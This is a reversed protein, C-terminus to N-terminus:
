DLARASPTGPLARALQARNRVGLRRYLRTLNAEVAKVSLFVAAAIERNTAGARVLEVIRRETETLGPGRAGDLRALDDLAAVRWPEAGAAAYRTVAEVFADRAAGRRHARRQLVALAHWARGEEIPYPHRVWRQVAEALREAAVRPGDEAALLASEARSLSLEVVWRGYRKANRQVESLIEAAEARNGVAALAEVFDGHWMLIAPDVRGLKQELLWARRMLDVAAAPDGRLMRVQGALGYAIALFDDDGAAISQQACEGALRAASDLDGGFWEGLAGSALGPGITTVADRWLRVCVRGAAVADAGRGARGYIAPASLLVAALDRVTGAREVESRLAEIRRVAEDVDGQLLKAQAAHQRAQVVPLSVPLGASRVYAREILEDSSRSALRSEMTARRSLAEVMSQTDGCQEAASEARKLERLAEELDGDWYIKMARFLHIPALLTLDDGADALAEDLLPGVGSQDQEALDVLLLRARVRTAPEDADRIAATAYATAADPLGAAYAHRAAELRRAAALGPADPFTRDAALRALEAAADPAGRQRAVSAADSLAAALAGDPSPRALALHRAREVPDDTAEALQEHVARRATPAADGYVMERLLPHTFRVAGGADVVVVGAQEAAAVGGALGGAGPIADALAHGLRAVLAQTPRPAAAVVLLAAASSDPLAALRASLLQRLRGPVPLPDLAAAPAEPRTLVRGLEVAYLPNGGSAASARALASLPLADRFRARLLEAVDGPTM